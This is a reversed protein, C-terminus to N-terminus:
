KRSRWGCAEAGSRVTAAGALTPGVKEFLDSGIGQPDIRWFQSGFDGTGVWVMGEGIVIPGSGYGNFLAVTQTIRLDDPTMQTLTGGSNNAVWVSGLGAAVETADGGASSTKTVTNTGPDIRSVAYHQHDTVWM